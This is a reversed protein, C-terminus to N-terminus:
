EEAKEKLRRLRALQAKKQKHWRALGEEGARETGRAFAWHLGDRRALKFRLLWPGHAADASCQALTYYGTNGRKLWVGDADLTLPAGCDPCAATYLAPDTKYDDHDLRGFWVKTDYLPGELGACLAELLQAKEDPWAALGEALPLRACVKATYLADDLANHFARDAEVPIGLREVVSELTLGEGEKRPYTQLFLRQLDYWRGPANEDLGCLYLNQKLVPMDDMGWEAFAADPGAWDMFRRLGEKIPVGAELDGQSLGTVKAIHHQLKRFIRPKLQLFFTDQVEARENIKVAGIQIIEGRLTLEAGHYRFSWPKYGINWELDFVILELAAGGQQTSGRNYRLGARKAVTGPRAAAPRNVAARRRHIM